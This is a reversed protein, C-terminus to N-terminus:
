QIYVAHDTTHAVSETCSVVPIRALVTPAHHIATFNRDPTIGATM